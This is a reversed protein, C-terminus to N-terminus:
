SVQAPDYALWSILGSSRIEKIKNSRIDTHFYIKKTDKDVRRLIVTRLIALDGSTTGIVVNHMGSKRNIAGESLMEWCLTEVFKLSLVESIDFQIMSLLLSNHLNLM